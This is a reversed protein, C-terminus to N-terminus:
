NGLVFRVMNGALREASEPAYGAIGWTQTGLLGSTIDEPSLLVAVRGNLVVRELTPETAKQGLVERAYRRFEVKRVDAGGAISKGTYIAHDPPVGGVQGEPLSRAVLERMSRMFAEGGRGGEAAAGAADAILTGGEMLYARLARVDEDKVLFSATGTMHAVPYKGASLETPLVRVVNLDIGHDGDARLKRAFAPWAGPEPDSNGSFIVRAMAAKRAPAGATVNEPARLRAKLPVKGTQYFYLATPVDFHVKSATRKLQWSAALDVPCHVWIERMGNSMGLLQPAGDLPVNLAAGFLVHDTMLRRMEYRGGVMQGAARRMANTFGGDSGNSLSFIMGGGEVYERLRAIDGPSFGPDGSGTIVLIPADLWERGVSAAARGGEETAPMRLNVVQWNLPREFQRSMWRTLYAVDMPRADWPGEYQLKNFVVPNRGRALFLLAFSTATLDNAGRYTAYEAPWSGADWAGNNWQHAVINAALERYWDVKGLYRLGSALGIREVTYMSYLDGFNATFRGELWAMGNQIAGDSRPVARLGRDVFERTIYLTAIGALGMSDREELSDVSAWYPWSGNAKQMTRWFRDTRQWYGAPAAIGAEELAWMGLAGYQANSLDGMAVGERGSGERLRRPSIRQGYTYGGQPGMGMVLYRYARDLAAQPGEGPVEDPKRPLMALASAQLAVVYTGDAQLRTLWDMSPAMEKSRFHLKPGYVPDDKLSQGAHLLAYVALATEGGYSSWTRGRDGRWGVRGGGRASGPPESRDEWHGEARVSLLYDAGRQMARVVDADTLTSADLSSPVPRFRFGEGAQAPVDDEEGAGGGAQTAAGQTESPRSAVGEAGAM